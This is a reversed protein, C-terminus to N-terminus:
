APFVDAQQLPPYPSEAPYRWLYILVGRSGCSFKKIVDPPKLNGASWRFFRQHGVLAIILLLLYVDVFHGKHSSSGHNCLGAPQLWFCASPDYSISQFNRSGVKWFDINLRLTLKPSSDEAQAEIGTFM